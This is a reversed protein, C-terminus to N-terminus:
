GRLCDPLPCCLLQTARRFTWALEEPTSGWGAACAFEYHMELIEEVPVLTSREQKEKAVERAVHSALEECIGWAIENEAPDAGPATPFDAPPKRNDLAPRKNM